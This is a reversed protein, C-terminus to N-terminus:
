WTRSEFDQSSVTSGAMQAKNNSDPSMQIVDCVKYSVSHLPFSYSAKM